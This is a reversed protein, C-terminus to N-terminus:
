ASVMALFRLHSMREIVVPKGPMAEVPVDQFAANIMAEDPPFVQAPVPGTVFIVIRKGVALNGPISVANMDPGTAVTNYGPSLVPAGRREIGTCRALVNPEDGLMGAAGSGMGAGMLDQRLAM